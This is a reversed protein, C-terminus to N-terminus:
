NKAKVIDEIEGYIVVYKTCVKGLLRWHEEFSSWFKHITWIRVM